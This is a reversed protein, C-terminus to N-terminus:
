KRQENDREEQERFSEEMGHYIASYQTGAYLHHWYVIKISIILLQGFQPERAENLEKVRFLRDPSIHQDLEKM